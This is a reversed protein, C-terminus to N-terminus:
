LIMTVDTELFTFYDQFPKGSLPTARDVGNNDWDRHGYIPWFRNSVAGAGYNGKYPFIFEHYFQGINRDITSAAGIPYNNDGVTTIFEPNWSKVLSAIEGEKEEGSGYDGIVAFRIANSGTASTPSLTPQPTSKTPTLSSPISSSSCSTALSALSGGLALGALDRLVIRRSMRRHTLPMDLSIAEQQSLRQDTM